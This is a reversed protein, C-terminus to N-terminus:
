VVESQSSPNPVTIFHGKGEISYSVHVHVIVMAIAIDLAMNELTRIVTKQFAVRSVLLLM